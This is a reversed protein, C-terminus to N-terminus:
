DIKKLILDYINRYGKVANEIAFYDKAGERIASREFPDEKSLFQATKLYDDGTLKELVIGSNYKKVIDAVDGVGSNTIVPIGMAMIEGHKTPFFSTQLLVIKYFVSYDSLSLLVQVENRQADTVKIKEIPIGAKSPLMMFKKM